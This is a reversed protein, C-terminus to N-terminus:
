NGWSEREIERLAQRIDSLEKYTPCWKFSRGTVSSVCNPFEVFVVKRDTNSKSFLPLGKSIKMEM